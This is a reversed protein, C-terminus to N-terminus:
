STESFPAGGALSHSPMSALTFGFQEHQPIRVANILVSFRQLPFDSRKEGGGKASKVPDFFVRCVSRAKIM